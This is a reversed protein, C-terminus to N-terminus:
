IWIVACLTATRNVANDDLVYIQNIDDDFSSLSNLEM